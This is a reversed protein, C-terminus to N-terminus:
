WRMEYESAPFSLNPSFFNKNAGCQSDNRAFLFISFLLRMKKSFVFVIEEFITREKRPIENKGKLIAVLGLTPM